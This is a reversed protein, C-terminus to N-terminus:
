VETNKWELRRNVVQAFLVSGNGGAAGFQTGDATWSFDMLSGAAVRHKSHTWGTKDCLRINNFSGVAFVEGKPAWTQLHLACSRFLRVRPVRLGRRRQCHEPQHHELGRLDRHRRSCEVTLEQPQGACQSLPCLTLACTLLACLLLSASLCVCSCVCSCVLSSLLALPPLRGGACDQDHADERLRHGGPRRGAGLLLLVGLQRDLSACLPPQWQTM